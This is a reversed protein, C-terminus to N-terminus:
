SPSYGLLSMDRVNAPETVQAKVTRDAGLLTLKNNETRVLIGGDPQFLVATVAGTVPLRVDAGTAVDVVANAFVDRGIDGDPQDGTRQNVAMLKGDASISFPDCSRRLEPNSKSDLDGFVPVLRANGGDADATGIRCEGTAYGLRHGGASWLFHMGDPQHALATFAGSAVNVVGMTRGGDGASKAVLLRQSDPSWAPEFGADISDRLVTRKDHGDRDAVVVHQDGDIFAVSTGDPSVNANYAGASLVTQTGSRTLRVLRDADAYYLWGPLGVISGVAAPTSSPPSSPTATPSPSVSPLDVASPPAVAPTNGQTAPLGLQWTFVGAVALVCAVAASRVIAQNRGIRKSRALSRDLFDVPKAQDSLNALSERLEDDNM